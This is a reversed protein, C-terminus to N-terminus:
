IANRQLVPSKDRITTDPDEKGEDVMFVFLYIYFINDFNSGESFVM